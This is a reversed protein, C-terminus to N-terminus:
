ECSRESLDDQNICLADVWVIRDSYVRRIGILASRLNRTVMKIQGEFTIPVLDEHNGWVYSLAEYDPVDDLCLNELTCSIEEGVDGAKLRLVRIQGLSANIENYIKRPPSQM